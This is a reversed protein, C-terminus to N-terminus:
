LYFKIEPFEKILNELILGSNALAMYIPSQNNKYSWRTNDALRYFRIPEQDIRKVVLFDKVTEGKSYISVFAIVLNLLRVYDFIRIRYQLDQNRQIAIEENVANFFNRGIDENRDVEWPRVTGDKLRMKSLHDSGFLETIM